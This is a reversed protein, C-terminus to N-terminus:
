ELELACEASIPEIEFGFRRRGRAPSAFLPSKAGFKPPLDHGGHGHRHVAFGDGAIDFRAGQQHLEQAFIQPQGARMDAAVGRLAAGADHMDVADRALDQM